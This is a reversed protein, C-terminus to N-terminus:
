PTRREIPTCSFRIDLFVSHGFLSHAHALQLTPTEASYREAPPCPNSSSRRDGMRLYHMLFSTGALPAPSSKAPFADVKTQESNARFMGSIPDRRFLLM